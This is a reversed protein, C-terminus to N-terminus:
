KATPVLVGFASGLEHGFGIHVAVTVSTWNVSAVRVSKSSAGNGVRDRERDRLSELARDLEFPSAGRM